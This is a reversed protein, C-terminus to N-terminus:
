RGSGSGSVGWKVLNELNVPLLKLTRLVGTPSKVNPWSTPLFEPRPSHHLELRLPGMLGKWAPLRPKSPHPPPTPTAARIVEGASDGLPKLTEWGQGVCIEALPLNWVGRLRVRILSAEQPQTADAEQAYHPFCGVNEM